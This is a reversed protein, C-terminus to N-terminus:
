GHQSSSRRRFTLYGAARLTLEVFAQAALRNKDSPSALRTTTAQFLSMKQQRGNLALTTEINAVDVIVQHFDDLTKLEQRKLPRGAPNGSKGNAFQGKDDRGTAM